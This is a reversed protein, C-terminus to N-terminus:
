VDSAKSQRGHLMVEPAMHSLTGQRSGNVHTEANSMKISLGFDSIQLLVAWSNDAGAGKM